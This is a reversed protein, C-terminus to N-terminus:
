TFNDDLACYDLIYSDALKISSRKEEFSVKSIITTVRNINVLIIIKLKSSESQIKQKFFVKLKAPHASNKSGAM